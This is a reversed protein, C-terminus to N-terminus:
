VIGDNPVESPLPFRSSTNRYIQILIQDRRGSCRITKLTMDRQLVQYATPGHQGEGEHYPKKFDGNPQQVHSVKLSPDFIESRSVTMYSWARAGQTSRFGPRVSNLRRSLM